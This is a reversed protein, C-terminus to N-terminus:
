KKNKPITAVSLAVDLWENLAEKNEIVEEPVLFYNMGQPKGEKMYSFKKSGRTLYWNALEDTGKFWLEDNEAIAFVKGNSYLIHGGMMARASVNLDEDFIDGILYDLFPNSKMLVTYKISNM